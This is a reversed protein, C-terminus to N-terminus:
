CSRITTFPQHLSLLARIMFGASAPGSPGIGKVACSTSVFTLGFCLVYLHAGSILAIGARCPSVLVSVQSFCSEVPMAISALNFITCSAIVIQACQIVGWVRIAVSLKFRNCSWNSFASKKMLIIGMAAGSVFTLSKSFSVGVLNSSIQFSLVLCIMRVLKSSGLSSSMKSLFGVQM